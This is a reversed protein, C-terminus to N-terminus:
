DAVVEIATVTGRRRAIELCGDIAGLLVERAVPKQLHMDAGALASEARVQDSLLGTLMIIPVTRYAEDQRIYRALDTGLITPMRVDLLILEPKALSAEHEFFRPDKCSFVQYGAGELVARLWIIQDQDDDIILINGSRQTRREILEHLRTMMAAYDTVHEFYADAGYRVAEVKDSFSPLAGTLLIATRDGGPRNRLKKLLQFGNRAVPGADMVVADLPGDTSLLEEETSVGRAPLGTAHVAAILRERAEDFYELVVVDLPRVQTTMEQLALASDTQEQVLCVEIQEVLKRLKEIEAPSIPRRAHLITVCLSEGQRSQRSLEYFGYTGGTGALTHFMTLLENLQENDAPDQRLEALLVDIHQLRQKVRALFPEILNQLEM